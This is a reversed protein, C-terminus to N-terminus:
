PYVLFSLNPPNKAKGGKKGVRLIRDKLVKKMKRIRRWIKSALRKEREMYDCTMNSLNLGRSERERERERERV